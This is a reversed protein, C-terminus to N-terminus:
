LPGRWILSQSRDIFFGISMIKVGYKEIPFIVEREGIVTVDPRADEIGFM